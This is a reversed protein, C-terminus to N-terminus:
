NLLIFGLFFFNSELLHNCLIILGKGANIKKEMAIQNNLVPAYVSDHIPKLRLVM